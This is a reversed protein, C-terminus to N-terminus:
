HLPTCQRLECKALFVKGNDCYMRYVEVPGKETILSAGAGGKCGERKAMNEVTVSSVSTQFRVTQIKNSNHGSADASAQAAGHAAADTKAKAAANHADRNKSLSACGIVLTGIALCAILSLKKM